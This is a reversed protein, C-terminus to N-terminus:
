VSEARICNPVPVGAEYISRCNIESRSYRFDGLSEANNGQGSLQRSLARFEQRTESRSLERSSNAQSRM